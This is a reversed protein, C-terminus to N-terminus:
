EMQPYLKKVIGEAVEMDEPTTIKINHYSGEVLKVSKHMVVELVMADDTVNTVTQMHQMVLKEYAMRILPYQFTQPTQVMWVHSRDPTQVSFQHGDVIKVTDKMPVAAVGSGHQVAARVTRRIIEETVFPRAGDHILVIDPANAACLGEYVSFYRESGGPIIKAVKKFNYKNVIETRCYGLDDAATVLIIDDVCSQEFAHLAYYILPFGNLDMFQKQVNAHM